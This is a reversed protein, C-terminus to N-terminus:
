TLSRFTQSRPTSRRACSSGIVRGCKLSICAFVTAHAVSTAFGVVISPRVRAMEFCYLSRGQRSGAEKCSCVPCKGLASISRSAVARDKGRVLCGGSRGSDGDPLWFWPLTVSVATQKRDRFRVRQDARPARSGARSWPPGVGRTETSKPDDAHSGGGGEREGPECASITTTSSGPSPASCSRNRKNLPRLTGPSAAPRLSSPCMTPLQQPQSPPRQTRRAPSRSIPAIQLRALWLCFPDNLPRSQVRAHGSLPESSACNRLRSRRRSTAFCATGSPWM